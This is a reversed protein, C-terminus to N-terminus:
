GHRATELDSDALSVPPIICVLANVREPDSLARAIALAAEREGGTAVRAVLRAEAALTRGMVAIDLQTM